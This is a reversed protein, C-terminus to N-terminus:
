PAPLTLVTGPVLTSTPLENREKIHWIARRPDGDYRTAAIEWLTDGPRVVYRVEPGASSSTRALGLALAAVLILTLLFGALRVFM